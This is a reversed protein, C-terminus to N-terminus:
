KSTLKVDFHKCWNSTRILVDIQHGFVSMLKVDSDLVDIKNVWFWRWISTPMKIDIWRAFQVYFYHWISMLVEQGSKSQYKVNFQRRGAWQASDQVACWPMHNDDLYLWVLSKLLQYSMWHRTLAAILHLLIKKRIWHCNCNM